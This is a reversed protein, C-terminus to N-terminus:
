NFAPERYPLGKRYLELRARIEQVLSDEKQAAALDLARRATKVAESFQGGEAYAAALTDLCSPNKGTSLGDATRALEIAKIGNRLGEQPCTALLWALNNLSELDGPKLTLAKQYQVIAEAFQETQALAMALNFRAPASNPSAKVASECRPITINWKPERAETLAGFAKPAAFGHNTSPSVPRAALNDDLFRQIANAALRHAFENPHADFRNVVLQRPPLGEYVPLLDLHPVSLTRWCEALQRHASRFEYHNDLPAHLFPFTVALLRGGNAEVLDRLEKLRRQQEEWLPGHRYAALVFHYYNALDPVRRFRWRFYLTNAFYSNRVLWSQKESSTYIRDVAEKWEPTIDASDNLNYVLVVQDLEYGVKIIYELLRLENGTDLGQEALMQVDWRPNARRLRNVFRAEVNKIGHGATFSDGVLSIRRKGPPIRSHYDLNDRCGQANVHFHRQHWRQYTKTYGFSDSSDDLFRYYVEGGLFILSGLFLLVLVNGAALRLWGRVRTPVREVADRIEAEGFQDPVNHFVDRGSNPVPSPSRKWCRAFVFLSGGCAVPWSAFVLFWLTDNM